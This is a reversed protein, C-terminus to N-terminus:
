RDAPIGMSWGVCQIRHQECVRDSVAAPTSVEVAENLNIIVQTYSRLQRLAILDIGISGLKREIQAFAHGEVVALIKSGIVHDVTHGAGRHFNPRM